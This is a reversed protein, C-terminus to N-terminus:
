KLLKRARAAIEPLRIRAYDYMKPAQELRRHEAKYAEYENRQKRNEKSNPDRRTVSTKIVCYAMAPFFALLASVMPVASAHWGALLFVVNLLFSIAAYCAFWILLKKWFPFVTIKRTKAWEEFSLLPPADLPRRETAYEELSWFEEELAVLEDYGSLNTDREFVLTSYEAVETKNQFLTVGEYTIAGVPTRTRNYVRQNSRLQWGFGYMISLVAQEDEPAVDM